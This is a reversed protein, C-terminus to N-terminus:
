GDSQSALTRFDLAYGQIVRLAKRRQTETTSNHLEAMARCNEQTNKDIYDRYAADPSALTRELLAKLPGQAAATNAATGAATGSTIGATTLTRLTQLTDQQRRLREAYVLPANFGSQEVLQGIRKLQQESLPGYLMEARGTAQEYRRARVAAPTADIFDKRYDANSRSFKRQMVKLQEPQLSVALAAVAPEAQTPVVLLQRRADPWVACVQAPTITGQLLPQLRDLLDAYAPLQTQRHWAQLRALESKVQLSQADTFDAYGDLYFYALTPLQNYGIKVASCASLLMALALVSIIKLRCHTAPLILAAFRNKM